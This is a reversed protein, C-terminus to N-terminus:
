THASQVWKHTLWFTIRCRRVDSGGLNFIECIVQPRSSHAADEVDAAILAVSFILFPVQETKLSLWQHRVSHRMEILRPM